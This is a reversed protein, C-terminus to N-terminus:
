GSLHGWKCRAAFMAILRRVLSKGNEPLQALKQMYSCNIVEPIRCKATASDAEFLRADLVTGRVTQLPVLCERTSSRQHKAELTVTQASTRTGSHTRAHLHTHTYVHSHTYKHSAVVIGPCLARLTLFEEQLRKTKTIM